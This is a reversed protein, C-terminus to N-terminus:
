YSGYYEKEEHPTAQRATIIRIIEQGTDVDQYTHGVFLILMSNKVRGLAKWRQEGDQIYDQQILSNDDFFITLATEFSIGHKVQNIANKSDDWEFAVYGYDIKTM